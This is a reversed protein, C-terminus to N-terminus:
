VLLVDVCCFLLVVVCLLLCFLSGVVCCLSLLLVFRCVM